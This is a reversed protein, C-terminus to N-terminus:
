GVPSSPYFFARHVSTELGGDVLPQSLKTLNGAVLSSVPEM